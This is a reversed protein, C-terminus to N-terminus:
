IKARGSQCPTHRFGGLASRCFPLGQLPSANIPYVSATSELELIKGFKRRVVGHENALLM